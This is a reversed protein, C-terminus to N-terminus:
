KKKVRWDLNFLSRKQQTSTIENIANLVTLPVDKNQEFIQSICELIVDRNYSVCEKVYVM